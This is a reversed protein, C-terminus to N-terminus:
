CLIMLCESGIISGLDKFGVIQNGKCLEACYCLSDLLLLTARESAVYAVQPTLVHCYFFCSSAHFLHKGLLLLNEKCSFLMFLM